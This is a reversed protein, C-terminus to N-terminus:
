YMSPRDLNPGFLRCYPAIREWPIVPCPKSFPMKLLPSTPAPMYRLLTTKLIFLAYHTTPISPFCEFTFIAIGSKPHPAFPPPARHPHEPFSHRPPPDTRASMGMIRDVAPLDITAVHTATYPKDPIDGEPFAYLELHFTVDDNDSVRAAPIVFSSASLLVFSCFAM